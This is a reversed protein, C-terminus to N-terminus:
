LCVGKTYSKITKPTRISTAKILSDRSAKTAQRLYLDGEEEIHIIQRISTTSKTM